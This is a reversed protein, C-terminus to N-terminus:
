HLPDFSEFYKQIDSLLKYIKEQVQSIGFGKKYLLDNIKNHIWGSNNALNKIREGRALSDKYEQLVKLHVSRLVDRRNELFKLLPERIEVPIFPDLKILEIFNSIKEYKKPVPIGPVFKRNKLISKKYKLFLENIKEVAEDAHSKKAWYNESDRDFESALEESLIKLRDMVRKQYETNVTNLFGKKVSLYTLFAFVSASLYFVIQVIKLIDDLFCEYM